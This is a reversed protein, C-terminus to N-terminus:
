QKWGCLWYSICMGCSKLKNVLKQAFLLSSPVLGPKALDLDLDLDLGELGLDLDLM